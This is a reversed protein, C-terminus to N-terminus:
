EHLLQTRNEGWGLTQGWYNPLISDRSKGFSSLQLYESIGCTTYILYLLRADRIKAELAAGVGGRSRVAGVRWRASSNIQKDRARKHRWRQRAKVGKEEDVEEIAAELLYEIVM